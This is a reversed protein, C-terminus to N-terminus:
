PDHDWEMDSLASLEKDRDAESEATSAARANALANCRQLQRDIKKKKSCRLVGDGSIGALVEYLQRAGSGQDSRQKRLISGLKTRSMAAESQPLYTKLAGEFHALFRNEITYIRCPSQDAAAARSHSFPAGANLETGSVTM